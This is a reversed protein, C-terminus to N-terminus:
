CRSTVRKVGLYNGILPAFAAIPGGEAGTFIAGLAATQRDDAREDIYGAVTWNGEAMPGPVHAILAVKLVDLPVEEYRGRDIHFLLAVDCAGQTPRATLPSGGLDPLSM